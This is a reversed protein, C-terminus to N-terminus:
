SQPQAVNVPMRDRLRQVQNVIVVDGNNLGGTVIWDKGKWRGVEIKRTRAKGDELIFVSYGGDSLQRVAKQPILFVNDQNGLFLRVSVFQGPLLESPELKASLARTGTTTDIQTASFDIHGIVPKELNANSVEVPTEKTLKYGHLDNDSASFRVKLSQDQTIDTLNTQNAQVLTGPNVLSRGAIGSVPAKVDTYGLTIEAEKKKALSAAYTAKAIHMASVADAYEKNSVAKSKWLDTYRKAERQAQDLTAKAQEVAAEAAKFAAKFPAPDIIYLTDGQNVFDGESYVKKLIPGTVQPYILVAKEGETQGFVDVWYPQSDSQAVITQVTLPKTEVKKTNEQKCGSAFLFCFPLILCISKLLGSNHMKTHIFGKRGQLSYRM